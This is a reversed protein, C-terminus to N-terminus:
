FKFVVKGFPRDEIMYRHAEAIQDVAFVKAVTPKIKGAALLPILVDLANKQKHRDPYSSLSQGRMQIGKWVFDTMKATFETGASYGIGVLIGNKALSSLAEGTLSGGVMDIAVNVGKGATMRLVGQSITEKTLDIVNEFGASRAVEAKSSSGATTIVLSAGLAKALQTGANGVAGGAAISLVSQGPTFEAKELCVYASLFGVPFAAAVEDSVNDPTKILEIPYLGIYEQWVGESAIGRVSSQINFCSIIVRTGEPFEENGQVVIGAGENGLTKPLKVTQKIGGKRLTNDVPNVAAVTVKVLLQGEMLKPMDLDVVKLKDYGGYEEFQVAKM